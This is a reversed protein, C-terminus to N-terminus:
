WLAIGVDSTHRLVGQPYTLLSWTFSQGYAGQGTCLSGYVVAGERVWTSNIISSIAAFSSLINAAADLVFILPNL